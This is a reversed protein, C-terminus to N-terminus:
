KVRESAHYLDKFLLARKQNVGRDGYGVRSASRLHVIGQSPDFRVEFDDVFGFVLSSFVAAVYPEDARQVEGGMDKIISQVELSDFEAANSM